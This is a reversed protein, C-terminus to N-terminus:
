EYELKSLSLLLDIERMAIACIRKVGDLHIDLEITPLSRIRLRASATSM